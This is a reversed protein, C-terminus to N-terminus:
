VGRGEENEEQKRGSRAWGWKGGRKQKSNGFLFIPTACTLKRRAKGNKRKFTGAGTGNTIVIRGMLFEWLSFLPSFSLFEFGKTEDENEFFSFSYSFSLFPDPPSRVGGRQRREEWLSGRM